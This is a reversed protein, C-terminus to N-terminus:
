KKVEGTTNIVIRRFTKLGAQLGEIYADKEAIKKLLRENEACVQRYDALLIEKVWIPLFRDYFWLKIKQIM